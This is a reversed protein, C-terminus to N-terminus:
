IYLFAYWLILYWAVIHVVELTSTVHVGHLSIENYLCHVHMYSFMYIYMNVCYVLLTSQQKVSSAAPSREGYLM